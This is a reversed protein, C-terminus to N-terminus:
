FLASLIDIVDQFVVIVFDGFTALTVILLIAFLSILLSYETLGQGKKDKQVNM